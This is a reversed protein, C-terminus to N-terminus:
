NELDEFCPLYGVSGLLSYTEYLPLGVVNTYSGIISITFAAAKGQIGYSGAKGRWEGSSIYNYIESKKLKKFKVHTVVDRQRVTQDRRVCVSTYVRHRRGSLMALASEAELSDRPKVLVRRGLAVVTDAAIVIAGRHHEFVNKAKLIALRSVLQKPTEGVLRGEDINAPVVLDPVCGIQRLLAYRRESASALILRKRGVTSAHPDAM